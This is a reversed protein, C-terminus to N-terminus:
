DSRFKGGPDSGSLADWTGCLAQCHQSGAKLESRGPAKKADEDGDAMRKALDVEEDATLLPVKGIEKLYM